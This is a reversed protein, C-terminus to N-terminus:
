GVLPSDNDIPMESIMRDEAVRFFAVSDEGQEVNSLCVVDVSAGSKLTVRNRYRKHMHGCLLLRPALLDMLIRAYENGISNYRLSGRQRDFDSRNEAAIIGAPWDHVVLIDPRRFELAREVDEQNFYTYDKNSKKKFDAVRPRTAEFKDQNYIGSMGVVKLGHTEVTGARGLYFCNELVPGGNPILDLFGYPEHNGGIFYVPWPFGFDGSYFDPFDGLVRYKAPAAMTELDADNRHPEFDGVQLVFQIANSTRSEWESLLRVMDHHHGHVDGVAAFYTEKSENM